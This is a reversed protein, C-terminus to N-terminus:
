GERDGAVVTLHPRDSAFVNLHSRDGAAVNLHQRDSAFVYLLRHTIASMAIGAYLWLLHARDAAAITGDPAPLIAGRGMALMSFRKAKSDVAM